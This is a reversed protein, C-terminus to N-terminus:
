ILIKLIPAFVLTMLGAVAIALSSMSGEVEGMEMAKVTGFAHSSVGISIGIAVPHHIRFLKCLFPATVNGILGTMTICIATIAPIGGLMNVIELGIPTTVSKPIFSILLFDDLKLLKGLFIVSVIATITGAIAGCTVPLLHKRLLELNKYLPVALVVTVPLMFFELMQAGKFYDQTSINLIKLILILFVQAVLMPNLLPTQFKQFLYKGFMFVLLTSILGFLPTGVLAEKLM